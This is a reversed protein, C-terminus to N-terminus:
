SRGHGTDINKLGKSKVALNFKKDESREQM